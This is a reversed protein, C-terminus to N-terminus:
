VGFTRGFYVSFTEATDAIDELRISYDNKLVRQTTIAQTEVTKRNIIGTKVENRWL